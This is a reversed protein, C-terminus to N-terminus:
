LDPRKLETEDDPVAPAEPVTSETTGEDTRRKEPRSRRAPREVTSRANRSPEQAAAQPRAAPEPSATASEPEPEPAPAASATPAEEARAAEAPPAPSPATDETSTLLVLVPVILLGVCLGLVGGTIALRRQSRRLRQHKASSRPADVLTDGSMTRPPLHAMPVGAGAMPPPPGEVPQAGRQSAATGEGSTSLALTVGARELGVTPLVQDLPRGDIVAAAGADREPGAALTPLPDGAEELGALSRYVEVATPRVSPEESLMRAVLSRASASILAPIEPRWAGVSIRHAVSLATADDPSPAGGTLCLVTGLAYVDSALSPLAGRAMEPSLSAVADSLGTLERRSRRRDSLRNAYV